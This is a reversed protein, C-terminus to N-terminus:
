LTNRCKINTNGHMLSVIIYVAL